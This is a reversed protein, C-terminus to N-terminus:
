LAINNSIGDLSTPDFYNVTRLGNADETDHFSIKFEVMRFGAGGDAHSVGMQCRGEAYYTSPDGEKVGPSTRRETVRVQEGGIFYRTGKVEAEDSMNALVLRLACLLKEDFSLERLTKKQRDVQHKVGTGILETDAPPRQKSSFLSQARSMTSLRSRIGM